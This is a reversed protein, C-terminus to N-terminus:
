PPLRSWSLVNDIPASSQGGIPTCDQGRWQTRRGSSLAPTASRLPAVSPKLLPDRKPASQPDLRPASGCEASAEAEAKLLATKAEALAKKAEVKPLNDTRSASLRAAQSASVRELVVTGSIVAATIGLVGLLVLRIVQRDRWAHESLALLVAASLAALPGLVDHSYTWSCWASYGTLTGGLAIAVFRRLYYVLRAM